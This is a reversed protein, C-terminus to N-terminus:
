DIAGNAEIKRSHQWGHQTMFDNAMNKLRTSVEMFLDRDEFRQLPSWSRFMTTCRHGYLQLREWEFLRKIDQTWGM